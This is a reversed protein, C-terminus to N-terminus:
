GYTSGGAFDRLIRINECTLRVAAEEWELPSTPHTLEKWYKGQDTVLGQQEYAGPKRIGDGKLIMVKDGSSQFSNFLHRLMTGKGVGHLGEFAIIM